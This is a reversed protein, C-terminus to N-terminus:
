STHFVPFILVFAGQYTNACDGRLHVFSIQLLMGGSELCHQATEARCSQKELLANGQFFHVLTEASTGGGNCTDATVQLGGGKGRRTHNEARYLPSRHIFWFMLFFFHTSNMLFFHTSNKMRGQM